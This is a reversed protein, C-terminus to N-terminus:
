PGSDPVAPGPPGAGRDPLFRYESPDLRRTAAAYGRMSGPWNTVVRGGGDRYWSDCRLWATGAFRAQLAADSAAAVEPRVDLAAAGREHVAQLAQRVYAAQAELFFVISGGSTNTNPGYLLFLSPFGPVTIGLHASPGGAWAERLSRGGVGTIEMPLMFGTTAFGTAWIITDVEHHRGDADEVGTPTIRTIPATVVEVDPRQLTPLWTSSFLVRKCGFAYDPWVARRLGPDRLQWRMFATSALRGVRGLTDPHRIMATLGEAYHRVYWRRAAQLGPVHQFAARLPAPYRRNRRPMFWNGTRQFVTLREVRDVVAPVFQVASAGTGVVAVRRGTLDHGHDWRASHFARGTFEEAGPVRPVVPRHLQGTAVVVASATFTRGDETTVTWRRGDWACSAVPADPVVRADVGHDRAVGRLYDLIEAQPSCLRTWDRRQAYSFSYLHSPVDCAAGPYTNHYWTGGIGPAADLVTIATFGHRQLEIAAAIGGFGAGIIVVDGGADAEAGPAPSVAATDPITDSATATGAATGTTAATDATAAPADGAAGTTTAAHAAAGPGPEAGTGSAV